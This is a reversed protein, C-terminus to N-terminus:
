HKRRQHTKLNSPYAFGKGCVECVYPKDGTHVRQHYTLDGAQAFGKGCVECVYPKDGTHVRQHTKLHGSQTFGKGCVECVFPKERNLFDELLEPADERVSEENLWILENSNKFAVLFERKKGRGRPHYIKEEELEDYKVEDGYDQLSQYIIPQLIDDEDNDSLVLRQRSRRPPRSQLPIDEEVDMKEEEPVLMRQYEELTLLRREGTLQNIELIGGTQIDYSYIYTNDM